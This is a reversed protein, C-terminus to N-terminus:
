QGKLIRLVIKGRKLRNQYALLMQDVDVGIRVWLVPLQWALLSARIPPVFATNM